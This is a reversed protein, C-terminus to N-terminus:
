KAPFSVPNNCSCFNHQFQLGDIRSSEQRENWVLVCVAGSVHSSFTIYFHWCWHLFVSEVTCWSPNDWPQMQSGVLCRFYSRMMLHILVRMEKGTEKLFVLSWGPNGQLIHQSTWLINPRVCWIHLFGSAAAQRLIIGITHSSCQAGGLSHNTHTTIILTMWSRVPIAGQLQSM